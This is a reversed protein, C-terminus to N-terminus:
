IEVYLVPSPFHIQSCHVHLLIYQHHELSLTLLTLPERRLNYTLFTILVDFRESIDIQVFLMNKM